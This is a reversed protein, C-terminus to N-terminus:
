LVWLSPHPSLTEIGQGANIEAELGDNKFINRKNYDDKFISKGGNTYIAGVKLKKM